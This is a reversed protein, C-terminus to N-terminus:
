DRLETQDYHELDRNAPGNIVKGEYSFRSGHCPCDWSKEDANWAGTGKLHTCEASVINLQGKEDRYVGFKQELMDVIKGEGAAVSDLERATKFNPQQKLYGLLDDFMHRFAIGSESLTFRSPSYIKAWKNQVGNILDTILMGGITCHTMGNGSDGTIIYVNDHDFPNRGIFAVGDMPEMVQGSWRYAVEGTTFHDRSWSELRAYRGEEPVDIDSTDGTPHDEGGVILLDGSDDMPQVRVYHYPAVDADMAYDGSDWWLAYPLSGKEIRFGVVYTRYPFQKTPLIFQSNVPANTAVVINKARVSFGNATIGEHTIESAHTGTFIRGGMARIKEALGLIYKLPHFQAQNRFALGRVRNKLGPVNEEIAVDLGANRAAELELDLVDEKDSPHRFLYGDVPTFECEINEREATQRIFEIAANHSAALLASKEKGFTKELNYYRDDLAATVHATTRGTEGSGLFGDEVLVVSRGSKALCYATTIGALGGGVIVTDTELNEKLTDFQQQPASEVWYTPHAGATRGFDNQDM